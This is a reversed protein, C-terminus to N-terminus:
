EVPVSFSITKGQLCMESTCEQYQITGSLNTKVKTKLRFTQIFEVKEGYQYQKIGAVQDTYTEKTGKETPIGAIVILPNKSFTFKTPQAIAEKPQEQAYIHWGADMTAIAHFEFQQNSIKTISYEWHARIKQAGSSVPLIACLLYFLSIAKM